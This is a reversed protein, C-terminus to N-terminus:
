STLDPVTRGQLREPCIVASRSAASRGASLNPTCRFVRQGQRRAVRPDTRAKRPRHRPVNPGVAIERDRALHCALTGSLDDASKALSFKMVGSEFLGTMVSVVDVASSSIVSVSTCAM